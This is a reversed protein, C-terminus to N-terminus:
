ESTLAMATQTFEKSACFHMTMVYNRAIFSSSAIKFIADRQAQVTVSFYAIVIVLM